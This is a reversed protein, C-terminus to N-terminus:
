EQQQRFATSPEGPAELGVAAAAGPCEPARQSCSRGGQKMWGSGCSQRSGDQLLEQGALALWSVQKDPAQPFAALALCGSGSYPELVGM